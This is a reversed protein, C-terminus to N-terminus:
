AKSRIFVFPLMIAFAPALIIVPPIPRFIQPVLLTLFVIPVFIAFAVIEMWPGTTERVRYIRYAVWGLSFFFISSPFAHYSWELTYHKSILLILHYSLGMLLCSLAAVTSRRLMFPGALYFLLEIAVSFIPHLLSLSSGNHNPSVGYPAWVVGNQDIHLFWLLDQGVIFINTFWVYLQVIVPLTRIFNWFDHAPMELRFLRVDQTLVFLVLSSI